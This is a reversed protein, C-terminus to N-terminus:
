SHRLPPGRVLSTIDHYEVAISQRRRHCRQRSHVTGFRRRPRRNSLRPSSAPYSRDRTPDHRDPKVVNNSTTLLFESRHIDAKLQLTRDLNFQGVLQQCAAEVVDRYNSRVVMGALPAGNDPHVQEKINGHFVHREHWEAHRDCGSM